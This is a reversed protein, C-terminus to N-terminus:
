NLARALFQEHAKLIAALESSEITRKQVPMLTTRQMNM